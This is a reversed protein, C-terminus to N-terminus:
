ESQILTRRKVSADSSLDAGYSSFLYRYWPHTIWEWVPWFVSVTLSKGHRPPLNIKVRNLEGRTVAELVHCVARTGQHPQYVTHPELVHWSQRTFELLSGECRDRGEERALIALKRSPSLTM